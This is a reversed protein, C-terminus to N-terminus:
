YYIGEGSIESFIWSNIASWVEEVAVDGINEWRDIFSVLEFSEINDNKDLDVKDICREM